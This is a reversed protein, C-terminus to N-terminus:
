LMKDKEVTALPEMKKRIGLVGSVRELLMDVIEKDEYPTPNKRESSFVHLLASLFINVIVFMLFIVCTFILLSGLVPDLNIVEEYNFIGMILSIITVLSDFFTRYNSVTWGFLLNCSIAYAVLLILITLLFGSIENWSRQLTVTILHLNPNLNLLRWLKATMLAVLFAVSYGHATDIMATEYFSVFRTRDLHYRDVDRRRLFVRKLYLGTNSLCIVIISLDLLNSTQRFYSCKQEKLRIAQVIISYVVILLFILYSVFGVTFIGDTNQYLRMVLLDTSPSLGGILTRELIFTVLCFLNINANYVNFEVFIVKTLGDLWASSEMLDIISDASTRNLGLESVYGGGSYYGFKAWIPYGGLEEESHYAWMDPPADSSRNTDWGIGYSHFDEMNYLGPKGSSNPIRLQRIRPSGLLFCNGDTIFGPYDSYLNPLLTDRSWGYFDPIREISNYTVSFSQDIARYLNYEDPSKEAYAQIMTTVLFILHVVIEQILKYLKQELLRQKKLSITNKNAPPQYVPNTPDRCGSLEWDPRSALLGLLGYLQREEAADEINVRKLVRFMFITQAFVKVPPIFFVSQVISLLISILWSIARDKTMDLSILVMYYGSFASIGFLFLWCLFTFCKPLQCCTKQTLSVPFSTTLSSPLPTGSVNHSKLLEKLDFLMNTAEIYEIPRSVRSLDVSAVQYQLKELVKYLYHLFHCQQATIVTVCKTNEQTTSQPSIYNQVLHSITGLHDVISDCESTPLDDASEGLVQIIYKQLFDVIDKIDKLLQQAADNKAPPKSALSARLKCVNLDVQKLQVQILQFMQVILFNVPLLLGSTQISIKVQTFTIFFKGTKSDEDSHDNWFMINIVLSCFLLCMCCCIRQARSFPSWPCRTWVSFWLHDKLLKEVSGSFLLYRLSMLNAKSASPFVRDLQCDTMDSALWSDCLFFWTKQADLDTVTVRHVFWSPSSGSNSHWLRLSHLEGLHRTKLLFVDVAGRHFIEKGSDTLLHPDSQGESGYLTLVVQSTTGSGKRFGTCVKVMYRCHFAPDNDTLIAIRVKKLDERDKKGAWCVVIVFFGILAGLLALGVPNNAVNAFLTLSDSIDVVHPMVLFTSAFFTLHNCLCHTELPTSRAGVHCGYNNWIRLEEDWFVCQSAFINITFDLSTMQGWISANAVTVNIYYVGTGNIFMDPTLVWTYLGDNPFSINQQIFSSNQDAQFGFKLNLPVPIKPQTIVVVTHNTSTVNVSLMLNKYKTLTMKSETDSSNQNKMLVIEIYETMNQVDIAGDDSGLLINVVPGVIEVPSLRNFPNVSLALVLVNLMEYSETKSRLTSCNPFTVRIAAPPDSSFQATTLDTSMVRSMSISSITSSLAYNQTSKKSESFLAGEIYGISAVSTDLIHIIQDSTLNEQNELSAKITADFAHFLSQAADVVVERTANVDEALSGSLQESLGLLLDSANVQTEPSLFDSFNVLHTLVDSAKSLLSVDWIDSVMNVLQSVLESTIQIAAEMTMNALNDMQIPTFSNLNPPRATSNPRRKTVAPKKTTTRRSSICFGWLCLSRDKVRHLKPGAKHADWKHLQERPGQPVDVWYREGDNIMTLLDNKM